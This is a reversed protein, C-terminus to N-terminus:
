EAIFLPSFSSRRAASPSIFRLLLKNRSSFCDVSRIAFAITGFPHLEIGGARSFLLIKPRALFKRDPKVM